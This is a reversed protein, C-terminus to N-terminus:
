CLVILSVLIGVTAIGLIWGSLRCFICAIGILICGFWSSFTFTTILSVSAFAFTLCVIL